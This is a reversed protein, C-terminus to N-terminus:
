FLSNAIRIEDTKIFRNGKFLRDYILDMYDIVKDLNMIIFFSLYRQLYKSAVGHFISLWKKLNPWLYKIRYEDDVKISKNRNHRIAVSKIYRDGYAAIYSKEEIKSYVKEDFAIRNWWHKFIPKIFMSDEQGKAGIVWIDERPTSSAIIEPNRCGKFNEKLIVKGVHVVGSLSDPTVDRSLAQLIKHRWYFATGISINLKEACFKLTKNETMLETFEMWTRTNKKSYSWLSNTARSFTKDCVKCKYRQIGNYFGYKIHWKSGCIPCAEVVRDKYFDRKLVDNTHLDFKKLEVDHQLM